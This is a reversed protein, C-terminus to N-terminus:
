RGNRHTLLQIRRQIIELKGGDNVRLGVTSSLAEIAARTSEVRDSTAPHSSLFSPAQPKGQAEYTLTQFFTVLGSPDYGAESLVEVAFADAEMELERGFSNLYAMAALGSGLQAADGMGGAGLISAGAVLIDRGIKTNRQRNYNSAIHRLAVHGVEHAIVGALESANRAKLITETHVYIHGAPGAFANIEDDDVVYFRYDFPQPGAAHVFENGMENVYRRVVPDHVFVLERRMEHEFDYGLRREQSVTIPGCAALWLLLLLPSARRLFVRRSACCRRPM